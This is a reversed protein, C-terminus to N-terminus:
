ESIKTEIQKLGESAKKNSPDLKLAREFSSKARLPFELEGYIMGVEAYFEGNSADLEIAKVLAKQADHFRRLKRYVVGLYYHYDAVSSDLYSAQGLLEVAENLQGNRLADRGEGFKKRATEAKNEAKSPTRKVSLNRDYQAKMKQDTLTKYAETIYAFILNLKTKLTESSTKIHKDPHYEKALTYYAQRIQEKASGREIGLISYYDM